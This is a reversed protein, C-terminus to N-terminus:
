IGGLMTRAHRLAPDRYLAIEATTFGCARLDAETCAGDGAALRAMVAGMARTLRRVEQKGIARGTIRLYGGEPDLYTRSPLRPAAIGALARDIALNEQRQSYIPM